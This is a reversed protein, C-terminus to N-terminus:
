LSLVKTITFIQSKKTIHVNDVVIKRVICSAIYNFVLESRDPCLKKM